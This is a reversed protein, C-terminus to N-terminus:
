IIIRFKDLDIKKITEQPLQNTNDLLYGQNEPTHELKDKLFLARDILWTDGRAEIRSRIANESATLVIYYLKADYKGCLEKVLSLEDEVVYDCVVDIGRKLASEATHLICEWNFALVEEWELKGNANEFVNESNVFGDHIDDGHIIYVQKKSRHNVLHKAFANALTTKGCGCPGSFLYMSPM